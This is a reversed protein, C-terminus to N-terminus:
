HSRKIFFLKMALSHIITFTNPAGTSAEDNLYVLVSAFRNVQLGFCPGLFRECFIVRSSVLSERFHSVSPDNYFGPARNYGETGPASFIYWDNPELYQHCRHIRWPYEERNGCAYGAALFQEVSADLAPTVVLRPYEQCVMYREVSLYAEPVRLERLHPLSTLMIVHREIPGLQTVDGKHQKLYASATNFAAARERESAKSGVWVLLEPGPDVLYVDESSLMSRKLDGRAVESTPGGRVVRNSVRESARPSAVSEARWAATTASDSLCAVVSVFTVSARAAM